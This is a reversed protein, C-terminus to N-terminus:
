RRRDYQRMHAALYLLEFGYCILGFYWFPNLNALPTGRVVTVVFLFGVMMCVVGIVELFAFQAGFYVEAYYGGRIHIEALIMRVFWMCFLTFCILGAFVFGWGVIQVPRSSNNLAWDTLGSDDLAVVVKEASPMYQEDLMELDEMLAATLLLIALLPAFKPLVDLDRLSFM